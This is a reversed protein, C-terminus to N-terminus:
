KINLLRLIIERKKAVFYSKTGLIVMLFVVYTTSSVLFMSKQKILILKKRSLLMIQSIRTQKFTELARKKRQFKKM